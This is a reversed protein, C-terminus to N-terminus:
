VHQLELFSHTISTIHTRKTHNVCYVAKLEM